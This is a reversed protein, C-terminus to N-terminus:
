YIGKRNINNNLGLDNFIKELEAFNKNTYHLFILAIIEEKKSNQIELDRIYNALVDKNRVFVESTNKLTKVNNIERNISELEQKNACFSIIRDLRIIIKRCFQEKLFKIKEILSLEDYNSKKIKKM